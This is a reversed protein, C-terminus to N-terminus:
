DDGAMSRRLAEAVDAFTTARKPRHEAILTQLWGKPAPQIKRFRYAKVGRNHNRDSAAVGELHLCLAGSTESIFVKEVRYIKRNQYPIRHIIGHSKCQVCRCPSDDVCVALDGIKWDAM